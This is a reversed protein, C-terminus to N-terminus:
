TAGGERETDGNRAWGCDEHQCRPQVAPTDRLCNPCHVVPADSVGEGNRALWERTSDFMVGLADHVGAQADMEESDAADADDDDPLLDNLADMLVRGPPQEIVGLTNPRAVANAHKMMTAVQRALLWQVRRSAERHDALQARLADREAEVECLPCLPGEGEYVIPTGCRECHAPLADHADSM